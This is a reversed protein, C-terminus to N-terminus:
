LFHRRYAPKHSLREDTLIPLFNLINQSASQRRDIISFLPGKKKVGGDLSNSGTKVSYRATTKGHAASDSGLIRFCDSQRSATEIHVTDASRGPFGHALRASGSDIVLRILAGPNELPRFLDLVSKAKANVAIIASFPLGVFKSNANLTSTALSALDRTEVHRFANTQKAM